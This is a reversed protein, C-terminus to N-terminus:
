NQSSRLKTIKRTTDNVSNLKKSRLFNRALCNFFIVICKNWIQTVDHNSSCFIPVNELNTVVTAVFTDRPSTLRLFIHFQVSKKIRCFIEYAKCCVIFLENGPCKLRGRNLIDFFLTPQVIQAMTSNSILFRLCDDCKVHSILKSACYGSVYFIVQLESECIDIEPFDSLDIPQVPNFDTTVQVETISNLSIGSNKLLSVLKIKRESELVQKVSIYFNGGSMQRYRGFRSEIMDSQIKGTLVYSFNFDDILHIVLLRLVLCMNETALFTAHTLGEKKSNHWSNFFDAYELLKSLREDLTSSIPLKLDDFRRIGVTPSRVNIIKMLDGIYSLFRYTDAWELHDRNSYYRLAAITSDHFLSFVHKASTRQINTPNLVMRNLKHAKRLAMDSEIEYMQKVHCFDARPFSSNEHFKFVSRKQFNNYINKLTHVPDILLFLKKSPDHPNACPSNISTESLSNYFSRNVPHNDSCLAVINFGCDMVTKMVCLCNRKLEEVHLSHIPITAVIDSYNSSISKIMFCLLTTAPKDDNNSLGVFSGDKYQIEQNVYVEDFILIVVREYQNLNQIRLKLYEFTEGELHSFKQAIRRLTRLSPLTLVKDNLIAKYCTTSHAKWLICLTLLSVSFTHTKSPPYLVYELQEVIFDLKQHVSHPLDNSDLYSSLLDIAKKVTKDECSIGCITALLNLFDCFSVIQKPFQMCHEYASAHILQGNKDFASFSMDSNVILSSVIIPYPDTIVKIYYLKTNDSSPCLFFGSPKESIEEFRNKLSALDNVVDENIFNDINRQLRDNEMQLRNESSSHRIREHSTAGQLYFPYSPFVSPVIQPKLKKQKLVGKRRRTNTDSRENEFDTDQFHRSCVKSFNSPTFDKRSIARIWKKRLTTDIPFAHFSIKKKSKFNRYGSKCFPVCCTRGM